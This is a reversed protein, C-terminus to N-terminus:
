QQMMSLFQDIAIKQVANGQVLVYIIAKIEKQVEGEASMQINGEKDKTPVEELKLLLAVDNRNCKFQEALHSYMEEVKGAIMKQTGPSSLQKQIMGMISGGLLGEFM